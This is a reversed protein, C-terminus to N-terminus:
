PNALSNGTLKSRQFHPPTRLRINQRGMSDQQPTIKRVKGSHIVPHHKSKPHPNVGLGPFAVTAEDTLLAILSEQDIWGAM